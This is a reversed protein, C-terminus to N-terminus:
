GLGYVRQRNLFAQKGGELIDCCLERVQKKDISGREVIRTKTSTSRLPIVLEADGLVAINSNHTVIIVQRKEKIKRLNAVITKYIFESDLNDEPQDILLPVNSESQILIALLISQQQGLSLQAISRTHRVKKGNSETVKTILLEPRDDFNLVELKEFFENDRAKLLILAIDADSFIRRSDEDTIENLKKLDGKKVRECFDLPSIFSAILSSKKVQSTRWDMMQKLAEDFEPSFRGEVFEASVFLGDVSNKLNENILISFKVREAYINRKIERRRSLLDTRASELTLLNKQAELIKRLKARSQELDKALQNIKGIDFPIGAAELEEKKKDIRRQIEGEKDKWSDLKARIEVIKTGLSENLEDSKKSVFLSFNDIIEKVELFEDKGVLINEESIGSFYEFTDTNTLVDRYSKVLANLEKILDSRIIRESILATQLSVLDGVKDTELRAIKGELTAIQAKTETLGGIEIRAHTAKESNERLLSCVEQDEKVPAKLQLFSDLFELLARPNSDSYQITAATEGQGYSEIQIQQLGDSYDTVNTAIDNKSRKFDIRKGTEDEYILFVEEPWVDSDVVKASSTNGSAERLCELMTSKGTGRGGIICTLNKSFRVSQEDLIGGQLSIGVFHPIRDPIVNELRLRSEHFLFAIKLAEFDLSDVKVRTLKREGDANTGLRELDHSDSSMVKPLVRDVPQLLKLRRSSVLQRRSNDDDNDTYREINEKRSIELALLAPHTFIDDIVNNFRGLVREFGSALEIHALIGFGNYGQALNLCEVIGQTCREKDHSISLKGYFDRLNHFTEFYVLLHGQTTSVEIGPIVLISQNNKAYDIAIKSNNIENHDTISIISLGKELATDVINQPTM